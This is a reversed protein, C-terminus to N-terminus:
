GKRANLLIKVVQEHGKALAAQLANGCRGSEANIKTGKRLLVTALM